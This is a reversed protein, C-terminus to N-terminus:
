GRTVRGHSPLPPNIKCLSNVPRSTKASPAPMLSDQEDEASGHSMHKFVNARAAREHNIHDDHPPIWCFHTAKHDLQERLTVPHLDTRCLLKDVWNSPLPQCPGFDLRRENSSAPLGSFANIQLVKFESSLYVFGGVSLFAM